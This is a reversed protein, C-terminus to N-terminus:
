DAKIHQDLTNLLQKVLISTFPLPFQKRPQM